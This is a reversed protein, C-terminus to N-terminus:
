SEAGLGAHLDVSLLFSVERKKAAKEDETAAVEVEMRKRQVNEAATYHDDQEQKGLGLRLGAEIGSRVPELIGAHFATTCSSRLQHEGDHHQDGHVM